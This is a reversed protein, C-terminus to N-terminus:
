MPISPYIHMAALFVVERYPVQMCISLFVFVFVVLVVFTVQEKAVSLYNEVVFVFM